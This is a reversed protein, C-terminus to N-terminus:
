QAALDRLATSTTTICSSSSNEAFPHPQSNMLFGLKRDETWRNKTLKFVSGVISAKKCQPCFRHDIIIKVNGKEVGHENSLQECRSVLDECIGKKILDRINDLINSGQNETDAVFITLKKAREKFKLCQDCYPYIRINYLLSLFSGMFAGGLDAIYSITTGATGMKFLKTNIGVYGISSSGLRWKMYQAFTMLNQLRYVGDRLGEIKSVTITSTIYIGYDIAAYGLVAATTLIVIEEMDVKVNLRYCIFFGITASISGFVLGSFPIIFGLNWHLHENLGPICGLCFGLLLGVVAPFM